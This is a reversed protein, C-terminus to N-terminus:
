QSSKEITFEVRRNLQRGEPLDNNFKPDREGHGTVNTAAPLTTMSRLSTVAANARAESLNQNYEETGTFDTFGDIRVVRADRSISESILELMQRARENIDSRDFDFSLMAFRELNSREVTAPVIRTMGEDTVTRGSADTAELRYRLPQNILNTANAIEMTQVAPPTGSGSLAQGVPAGNQDLTIRWSTFPHGTPQVTTEFRVVTAGAAMTERQEIKIPATIRSDNSALEVRRNEEMGPATVPNTPIEPLNRADVTVRGAEVGWTNVLYDRVQQARTRSLTVNGKEAGSNSNTGTITLSAQPNEKLRQGVIDLVAHNADEATRGALTQVNFGTSGQRSYRAPIESKGAEFFVYPLLPMSSRAHMSSTPSVPEAAISGDPRVGRAIIDVSALAPPPAVIADEGGIDFKLSVAGRFQKVILDGYTDGSLNTLPYHFMVEPTLWVKHAEPTLPIDYGAGGGISAWLAPVDPMEQTSASSAQVTRQGRAFSNKVPIGINPGVLLHFNGFTIKGLLDLGVTRYAYSLANADPVTGSATNPEGTDDLVASLDNYNLRPSFMFGSTVPIELGIHFEPTNYEGQKPMLSGPAQTFQPVNPNNQDPTYPGDAMNWNLGGGIVLTLKQPYNGETMQATANQPVTAVLASLAIAATGILRRLNKIFM